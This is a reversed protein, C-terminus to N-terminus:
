FQISEPVLNQSCLNENCSKGMCLANVPGRDLLAPKEHFFISSMLDLLYFDDSFFSESLKLDACEVITSTTDAYTDLGLGVGDVCTSWGRELPPPTWIVENGGRKYLYDCTLIERTLSLM